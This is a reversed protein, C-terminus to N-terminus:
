AEDEDKQQKQKGQGRRDATQEPQSPATPRNEVLTTTTIIHVTYGKDILAQHLAERNPAMDMLAKAENRLNEFSVNFEGRASDFSTVTLTAGSFLPPNRLTVTTETKGDAKMEEVKEVMQTILDKITSTPLQQQKAEVEVADLSSSSLSLPNIYSLDQQESAFTMTFKEQKLPPAVAKAGEEKEDLDAITEDAAASDPKKASASSLKAFLKSPSDAPTAKAADETEQPLTPKSGAAANGTLQFLSPPAKKKGGPAEDVGLAGGLFEEAEELVEVESEDSLMAPNSLLKKFDKKGKPDGAPRNKVEGNANSASARNANIRLNPDDQNSFM